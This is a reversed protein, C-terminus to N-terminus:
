PLYRFCLSPLIVAVNHTGSPLQNIQMQVMSQEPSCERVVTTDSSGACATCSGETACVVRLQASLFETHM